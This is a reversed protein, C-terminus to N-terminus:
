NFLESIEKETAYESPQENFGLPKINEVVYSKKQNISEGVSFRIRKIRYKKLKNMELFTFKYLSLIKDNVCDRIGRNVCRIMENNELYILLDGPENTPWCGGSGSYEFMLYGGKSYKAISYNATMSYNPTKFSWNITSPYSKDGVYIQNQSNAKLASLVLLLSFLQKM